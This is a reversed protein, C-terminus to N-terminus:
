CNDQENREEELDNFHMKMEELTWDNYIVELIFVAADVGDKFNDMIEQHYSKPLLYLAPLLEPLVTIVPTYFIGFKQYWIHDIALMPENERAIICNIVSDRFESEKQLQKKIIPNRNELYFGSVIHAIAARNREQEM